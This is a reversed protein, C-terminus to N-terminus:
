DDAAGAGSPTVRQASLVNRRLLERALEDSGDMAWIRKQSRSTSATENEFRFNGGRGARVPARGSQTM